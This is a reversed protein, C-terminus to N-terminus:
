PTGDTEALEALADYIEAEVIAAAEAAVNGHSALRSGLKHPVTLLRARVNGTFRTWAEITAQTPVFEGREVAEEREIRERQAKALAARERALSLGADRTSNRAEYSRLHACYSRVLEEVSEGTVVGSRRLQSVRAQSVGVLRAFQSLVGREM